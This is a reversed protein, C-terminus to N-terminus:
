TTSGRFLRKKQAKSLSLRLRQWRQPNCPQIVFPLRLRPLRNGTRQPWRKFRVCAPSTWQKKRPLLRMAPRRRLQIRMQDPSSNPDDLLSPYKEILRVALEADVDRITPLLESLLDEAPCACSGTLTNSNMQNDSTVSELCLVAAALANRLPGRGVLHRTHVIFSAFQRNTSEFRQGYSLYHIGATYLSQLTDQDTAHLKRMVEAIPGYPYQGTRGLWDAILQITPIAKSPNADWLVPFLISTGAARLDERLVNGNTWVEPADQLKWLSATRTADIKAIICLTNKQISARFYNLPM